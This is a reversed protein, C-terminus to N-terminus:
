QFTDKESYLKNPSSFCNQQQLEALGFNPRDTLNNNLLIITEVM